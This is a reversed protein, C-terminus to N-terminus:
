APDYEEVKTLFAFVEDAPEPVGETVSGTGRMAREHDWAGGAGRVSLPRRRNTRSNSSNRWCAPNSPM